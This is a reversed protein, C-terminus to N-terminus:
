KSGRVYLVGIAAQVLLSLLVGWIVSTIVGVVAPIAVVIIFLTYYEALNTTVHMFLKRLLKM